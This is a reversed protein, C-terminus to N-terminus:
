ATLYCKATWNTIVGASSALASSLGGTGKNYVRPPSFTSFIIWATTSNAGTCLSNNRSADPLSGCDVEDGVSYGAEASGCVLVWRAGTPVCGLSHSATVPGGASPVGQPTSEFRTTKGVVIFVNSGADFVATVLENPAIEGVRFQSSGTLLPGRCIVRNGLGNVNVSPIAACGQDAKFRIVMGASYSTVAPSLTITYLSAPTSSGSCSFFQYLGKRANEDLKAATVNADLIKATTVNADLIKATTVNADTIAATVVSNAAMQASTVSSNVLSAAPIVNSLFVGADNWLSAILTNLSTKLDRIRQAGLKVAESNAPITADFYSM